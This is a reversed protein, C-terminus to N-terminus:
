YALHARLFEYSVRASDFPDGDCEDQEYILWEVGAERAAEFVDPWDLEGRGLEVLKPSGDPKARLQADKVHIVPCRGAYRRLYAAPDAGGIYVWATDLEAYVNVPSTAGYLIDLKYRPDTDFYEFEFAHNHYSYRLGEARLKAGLTNLRRAGGLWGDLTDRCEDMMSGPAVDTVGITKWFEVSGAFDHEFAEVSYHGAVARLGADDLAARIEEAPLEPMGSWQVYEFGIDRVRRLTDPLDRKAPERLTYLQLAIGPSNVATDGSARLWYPM